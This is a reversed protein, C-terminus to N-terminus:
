NGRDFFIRLSTYPLHAQYFQNNVFREKFDFYQYGVNWEMMNHLKIALRAEPFQLQYPYSAIFIGPLDSFRDGQGEDKHIRYAAFLRARPHMQIAANIFAFNDRMFYRSEGERRVSDVFAIVAAESTIRTYTYGGGLFLRGNPAYDAGATFIRTNIDVGFNRLPIDETISPNSNDRTVLSANLSLMRNPRFVNRWRIGTFDYNGVRTFVNDTEGKELDFYMTWNKLPIARFGFLITNTRNDFEELEGEEFDDGTRTFSDQVSRRDTYRHGIHASFRRHFQYDAEITNTYRRYSLTNFALTNLLLPPLVFDGTPGSRTRFLAERLLNGGDINFSNVRFTDSIRLRDTALYTVAMDGLRTPRKADGDATFDNLVIRNGSSDQGTLTEFLNFRTRASTYIFRGTIDLRNGLFTHLSLRTFPVRGRIPLDRRFTDLETFNAPNNGPQPSTILYTTDDKFYRIGQLFSIDFAWLNVDVGVRYNNAETRFPALIPIEDRSFDYTTVTPGSNRDYSYGATFRIRDSEPLVTLDFDGMKHDTNYIHQNLAFNRLSNFYDFHRVNADFRYWETKEANIRLYGSPDGGWGTTNVLLSDFLKGNNGNSQMLFSSDFVRVGPQYNWDSRYKDANGEVSAGRVGVEVSSTVKYGGAQQTDPRAPQQANSDSCILTLSSLLLFAAINKM